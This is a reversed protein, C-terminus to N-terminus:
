EEEISRHGKCENSEDLDIERAVKLFILGWGNKSAVVVRSPWIVQLLRYFPSDRASMWGIKVLM